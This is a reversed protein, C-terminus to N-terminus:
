YNNKIIDLKHSVKHYYDFYNDSLKRFHDVDPNKNVIDQHIQGKSNIFYYTKYKSLGHEKELLIYTKKNECECYIYKGKVVNIVTLPVYIPTNKRQKCYQVKDFYFITDKQVYYPTNKTAIIKDGKKIKSVSEDIKKFLEIDRELVIPIITEPSNELYFENKKINHIIIDGKKIGFLMRQKAEYKVLKEM